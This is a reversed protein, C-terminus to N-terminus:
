ATDDKKGAIESQKNQNVVDVKEEAVKTVGAQTRPGDAGNSFMARGQISQSSTFQPHREPLEEMKEALIKVTDGLLFDRLRSRGRSVRSLVTGLPIGLIDAAEQHTLEGVVVLLLTERLEDPLSSLAQQVNKSLEDAMPEPEHRSPLDGDGEGLSSEHSDRRRWHDASRRRLIAMLWARESRSTDYLHRSTWASRFTEQLVDEADHPNGLLRFAVRFLAAAHQEVWCDFQIPSSAMANWNFQLVPARIRCASGNTSVCIPQLAIRVRFLMEM